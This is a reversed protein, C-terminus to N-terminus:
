LVVIRYSTHIYITTAITNTTTTATVATAAAATEAAVATLTKYVGNTKSAQKSSEQTHRKKSLKFM